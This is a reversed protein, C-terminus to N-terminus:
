LPVCNIFPLSNSSDFELIFHSWPLKLLENKIVPFPLNLNISPFSNWMRPLHTFFSSQSCQNTTLSSYVIKLANASRTGTNVFSFCDTMYKGSSSDKLLTIFFLIDNLEYIISLPYINLTVLQHKYDSTYDKLIFKTAKRQIRELPKFDGLLTELCPFLLTITIKYWHLTHCNRWIPLASNGFTCRLLDPCKYARSSIYHCHSSWSLEDSVVIGLDKHCASTAVPSGNVCYTSSNISTSKM